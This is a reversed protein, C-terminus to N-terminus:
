TPIHMEQVVPIQLDLDDTNLVGYIMQDIADLLCGGSGTLGLKQDCNSSPKVVRQGRICM